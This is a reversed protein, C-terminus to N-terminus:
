PEAEEKLAKVKGRLIQFDVTRKCTLCQGIGWFEVGASLAEALEDDHYRLNSITGHKCDSMTRGELRKGFLERATAPVDLRNMAASLKRLDTM